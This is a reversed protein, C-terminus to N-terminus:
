IFGYLIIVGLLAILIYEITTETTLSKTFNHYVIGGVVYLIALALLIQTKIFRSAELQLFGAMLLVAVVFFTLVFGHQKLFYRLTM